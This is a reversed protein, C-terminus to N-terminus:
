NETPVPGGSVQRYAFATALLSAPAVVILGLGFILLGVVSVVLSILSFLLLQGYNRAGASFGEGISGSFDAANDAAYWAPFVFLPGVFFMVLSTLGIIKAVPGLVALMADMDEDSLNETDPLDLGDLTAALSDGFLMMSLFFVVIGILVAIAGTAILTGLTVGYRPASFGTFNWRKKLTSMLAFSYLVPYLFLLAFSALNGLLPVLLSLLGLGFVMVLGYTIWVKPNAFTARFGFGWAQMANMKGTGKHHYWGNTAPDNVPHPQMGDGYTGDVLRTGHYALAGEGPYAGQQAAAYGDAGYYGPSAYGDGGYGYPQQGYPQEGYPQQAYPEQGYGGQGYANGPNNFNPDDEPHGSGGNYRSTM